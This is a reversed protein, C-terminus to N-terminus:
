DRRREASQCPEIGDDKTRERVENPDFNQISGIAYPMRRCRADPYFMAQRVPPDICSRIRVDVRESDFGRRIGVFEAEYTGYWRNTATVVTGPKM